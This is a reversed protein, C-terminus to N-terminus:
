TRPSPCGCCRGAGSSPWRRAGTGVPPLAPLRFSAWLSVTFLAADVAYALAYSGTGLVVGALLPGAVTAVSSVTFNLTNAAPVLADPVLRPVIAGRTPSVLAFGVAQLGTLVLLLVPSRLGVLAQALLALTVAWTFFSAVLNLRRRDLVDSVAGGWIAVLVLPVLGALGLWGNWAPSRTVAYMQVPVTVATVQFGIFSVGNGVFMRRYPAFALPRTDVAVRRLLGRAGATV